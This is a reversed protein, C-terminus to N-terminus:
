HSFLKHKNKYGCNACEITKHTKSIRLKGKLPALCKKCFKKREETLKMNHSMAVRKIKKVEEPKFRKRKFFKQIKKQAESKSIKQKM